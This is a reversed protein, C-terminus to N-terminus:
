RFTAESEQDTADSRTLRKRAARERRRNPMAIQIEYVTALMGLLGLAMAVYSTAELLSM